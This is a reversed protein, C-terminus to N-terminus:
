LYNNYPGYKMYTPTRKSSSALTVVYLTPAIYLLISRAMDRHVQSKLWLSHNALNEVRGKYTGLIFNYPEVEHPWVKYTLEM